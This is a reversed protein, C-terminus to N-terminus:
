LDTYDQKRAPHKVNLVIIDQAADDVPYYIVYAYKRTVIKRVGEANQRRGAHPFILLNELTEYIASRVHQAAVPNHVSLYETVATINDLARPTFRLKM